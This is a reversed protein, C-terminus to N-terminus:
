AGKPPASDDDEELPFYEDEFDPDYEWDVADRGDAYVWDIVTGGAEAYYPSVLYNMGFEWTVRYERVEFEKDCHIDIMRDSLEPVPSFPFLHELVLAKEDEPIIFEELITGDPMLWPRTPYPLREEKM